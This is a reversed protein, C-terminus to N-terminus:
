SLSSPAAGPNIVDTIGGDRHDIPNSQSENREFSAM